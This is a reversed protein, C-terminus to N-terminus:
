LEVDKTRLYDRIEQDTFGQKKLASVANKVELSDAKPRPKEDAPKSAPKQEPQPAGFETAVQNRISKRMLELAQAKTQGSPLSNTMLWEDFQSMGTEPDKVTDINKIESRYDSLRRETATEIAARNDKSGGKSPLERVLEGAENYLFKSGDPNSVTTLKKSGGAEGESQRVPSGAGLDRITHDSMLLSTYRKDGDYRSFPAGQPVVPAPGLEQDTTTLRGDPSVDFKRDFLLGGRQIPQRTANLEDARATTQRMARREEDELQLKRRKEFIAEQISLERRQAAQQAQDGFFGAGFDALLGM